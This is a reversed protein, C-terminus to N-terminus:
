GQLTKIQEYREEKKMNAKENLQQLQNTKPNWIDFIEKKKREKKFGFTSFLSNTINNM